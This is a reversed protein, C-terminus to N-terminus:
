RTVLEGAVETLLRWATEVEQRGTKINGLTLRPTLRGGLSAHSVFIRGSGNLSEVLERNLEYM